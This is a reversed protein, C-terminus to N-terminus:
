FSNGNTKKNLRSTFIKNVHADAILKLFEYIAKSQEKSYRRSAGNHNLIKQVITEPIM